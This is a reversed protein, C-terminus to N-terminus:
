EWHSYWDGLGLEYQEGGLLVLLQGTLKVFMDPNDSIYGIIKKAELPKQAMDFGNIVVKGADPRIIGTLMKITTTKGAGNPGIFGVIEGDSCTFSINDAAIAAGSNFSKSLNVAEIM